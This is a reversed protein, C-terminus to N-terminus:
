SQQSSLSWLRPFGECRKSHLIETDASESPQSFCSQLCEAILKGSVMEEFDSEMSKLPAFVGVDLSQLAYSTHPPLCLIIIGNERATAITLYTM